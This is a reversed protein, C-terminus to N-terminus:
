KLLRIKSPLSYLSHLDENHLERWDRTIENRKLEFMKRLIRNQFIRLRHEERLTLSWTECGYLVIPLVITRYIKISLNKPLLDSSLLNQVRRYCANDVNLGEAHNATV